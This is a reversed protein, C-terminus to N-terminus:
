NEAKSDSRLAVGTVMLILAVAGYVYHPWIVMRLMLCEVALWGLLVCGQAAIWPGYGRKRRLVLFLVFLSMLGNMVLLLLGPFLFSHFPSHELLSLPMQWPQGHPDTLMPVSGVLATLGLFVLM